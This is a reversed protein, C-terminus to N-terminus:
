RHGVVPKTIAFGSGDICRGMRNHQDDAVATGNLDAPHARSQQIQVGNGYTWSSQM